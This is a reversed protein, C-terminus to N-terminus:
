EKSALPAFHRRRRRLQNHMEIALRGVWKPTEKGAATFAAALLAGLPEYQKRGTSAEFWHAVYLALRVQPNPSDISTKVLKTHMIAANLTESARRLEEAVQWLRAQDTECKEGAFYARLRDRVEKKQFL